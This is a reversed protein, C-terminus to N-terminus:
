QFSSLHSFAGGLKNKNIVWFRLLAYLNNGTRQLCTARVLAHASLDFM